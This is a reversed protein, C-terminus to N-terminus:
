ILDQGSVKPGNFNCHRSRPHKEHKYLTKCSSCPPQELLHGGGRCGGNGAFESMEHGYELGQIETSIYFVLGLLPFFTRQTQIPFTRAIGLPFHSFIQLFFGSTKKPMAEMKNFVDSRSIHGLHSSLAIEANPNLYFSGLTQGSWCKQNGLTGPFKKSSKIM